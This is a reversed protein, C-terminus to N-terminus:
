AVLADREHQLLWSKVALWRADSGGVFGGLGDRGVVRHCPILLPVPNQRCASAVARPGTGLAAALEGYTQTRGAPIRTLAEWVRWQHATGRVSLPLDFGRSGDDFYNRLQALATDLLASNGDRQDPEATLRLDIDVVGRDDVRVIVSGGFPAPITAAAAGVPGGSTAPDSVRGSASLATSGAM